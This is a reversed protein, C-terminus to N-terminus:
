CQRVRRGGSTFSACAHEWRGKTLPALDKVWGDTSYRSVTPKTKVGGTVVVTDTDPDPIACAQSCHVCNSVFKLLYIDNIANLVSMTNYKLNFTMELTEDAKVLITTMGLGSDGGMLYTGIGNNPTWSVHYNRYQSMTLFQEWSGTNPNLKLCDKVVGGCLIINNNNNLTHGYRFGPLPPLSCSTGDSPLFLEM